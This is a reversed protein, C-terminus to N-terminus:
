KQLQQQDSFWHMLGTFAGGALGIAVTKITIPGNGGAMLGSIAGGYVAHLISKIIKPM